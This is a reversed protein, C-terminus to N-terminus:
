TMLSPVPYGWGQGGKWREPISVDVNDYLTTRKEYGCDNPPPDGAGMPFSGELNEGKRNSKTQKNM